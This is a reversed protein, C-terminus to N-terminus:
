KFFIFYIFLFLYLFVTPGALCFNVGGKHYCDLCSVVNFPEAGCSCTPVWGGEAKNHWSMRNGPGAAGADCLFQNFIWIRMGLGMDVSDSVRPYPEAIQM